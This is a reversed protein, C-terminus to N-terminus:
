QRRVKRIRTEGGARRQLAEWVSLTLLIMAFGFGFDEVPSDFFVRRGSFRDENYLVIPASLKTLWGDVLVQFAWMIGLSIWFARKAVLRTRLVFLDGVVTASVAVLTMVSYEAM